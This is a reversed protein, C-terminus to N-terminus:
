FELRAQIQSERPTYLFGSDNATSHSQFGVNTATKPVYVLQSGTATTAASNFNYATASVDSTSFNEHNAVNYMDANLQLTYREHIAFEKQLRIDDVIARPVQYTNIGIVPLYYVSPAGNYSSNLAGNSNYNSGIQASYPLGNQMQFTDKISWGNAAYRMYSSGHLNPFNYLVYGVFRNPVNFQSSGYNQRANAYPNLWNNTSTTSSANQNYDLAHSWTYNFDFQTGHFSRNSIEAVFANYNSTINSIM